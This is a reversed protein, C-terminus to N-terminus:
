PWETLRGRQYLWRLFVLRSWEARTFGARECWWQEEQAAQEVATRPEQASDSRAVTAADRRDHEDM